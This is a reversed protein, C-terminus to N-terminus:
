IIYNVSLRVGTSAIHTWENDGSIFSYTNRNFFVKLIPQFEISIKNTYSYSLAAGINLGGLIPAYLDFNDLNKLDIQTTGSLYEPNGGKSKTLFAIFGGISGILKLRKTPSTVIMRFELPVEVYGVNYRYLGKPYYPGSYEMEYGFDSIGVGSQIGMRKTMKYSSLIGYNHGIHSKVTAYSGLNTEGYISYRNESPNYFISLTFRSDQKQIQGFLKSPFILPVLLAIFFHYNLKM